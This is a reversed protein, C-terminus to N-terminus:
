HYYTDVNAKQEEYTVATHITGQQDHIYFIAKTKAPHLAADIAAEGPNSIASPPLGSNKYTNFPSDIKKDASKSSAVM